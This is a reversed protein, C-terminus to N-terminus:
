KHQCKFTEDNISANVTERTYSVSKLCKYQLFLFILHTFDTQMFVSEKSSRLSCLAVAAKSYTYHGDANMHTRNKLQDDAALILALSPELKLFESSVLKLEM